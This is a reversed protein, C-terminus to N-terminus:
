ELAASQGGGIRGRGRRAQARPPYPEGVSIGRGCRCRDGLREPQIRRGDRDIAAVEEHRDVGVRGRCGGEGREHGGAQGHRLERRRRAQELM